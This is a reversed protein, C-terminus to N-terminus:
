NFKLNTSQGNQKVAAPPPPPPQPTRRGKRILLASASSIKKPNHPFPTSSWGLPIQHTAVHAAQFLDIQNTPRMTENKRRKRTIIRRRNRKNLMKTKWFQGNMSKSNFNFSNSKIKSSIPDNSVSNQGRRIQIDFHFNKWQIWCM